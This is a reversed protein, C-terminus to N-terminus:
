KRGYVYQITGFSAVASVSLLGALAIWNEKRPAAKSQKAPKTTPQKGHADGHGDKAGHDDGHGNAPAHDDNQEHSDATNAAHPKASSNTHSDHKPPVAGGLFATQQPHEGLWEIAGSQLDYVGGVIQLNGAKVAAAMVDSRTLLDQMSQRVNARIAMRVLRAGRADPQQQKTAEVAPVINDVLKAIHPTVHAGDVVATVAGCKIHGLVVILGTGLHEVGYELTGIEDEGAVNGAVRVVFLDGIGQDFIAEVPMRSDACGLIAAFPHQGSTATEARRASDFRPYTSEGYRYRDNGDMLRALADTPPLNPEKGHEAAQPRASSAAQNADNGHATSNATQSPTSQADKAAPQPHHVPPSALSATGVVLSLLIACKM